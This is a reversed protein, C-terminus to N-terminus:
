LGSPRKRRPGKWYYEPTNPGGPRIQPKEAARRPTTKQAADLQQPERAQSGGCNCGM